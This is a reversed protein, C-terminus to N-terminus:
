RRLSQRSRGHASPDARFPTDMRNAAISSTPTSPDVTAAAAAVSSSRRGGDPVEHETRRDRRLRRGLLELGEGAAGVAARRARRQAAPAIELATRRLGVAQVLDIELVVVFDFVDGTGVVIVALDRAPGAGMLHDKRHDGARQEVIGADKLADAQHGIRAGVVAVVDGLGVPALALFGVREAADHRGAEPDFGSRSQLDVGGASPSLATPESKMLCTQSRMSGAVPRRM